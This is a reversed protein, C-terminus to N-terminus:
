SLNLDQKPCYNYVRNLAALGFVVGQGVAHGGYLPTDRGGGVGRTGFRTGLM